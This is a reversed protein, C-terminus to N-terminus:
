WELRAALDDSNPVRDIALRRGEFVGGWLGLIIFPPGGPEALQCVLSDLRMRPAKLNAGALEIPVRLRVLRCSYRYHLVQGRLVTGVGAITLEEYDRAAQWRFQQNWLKHPIVTLPAGTDFVADFAGPDSAGQPFLVVPPAFGPESGAGAPRGHPQWEPALKAPGTGFRDVRTIARV